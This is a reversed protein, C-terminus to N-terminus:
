AKTGHRTDNMISNVLKLLIFHYIGPYILYMLLIFAIFWVINNGEVWFTYFTINKFLMLPNFSQFIYMYTWYCGDILLFPIGLRVIRKRYFQRTSKGKLSFFLFIGSLFLFMDVGFNGHKFIGAFFYFDSGNPMKIKGTFGHFFMIWLISIGYLESKYKSIIGWNM